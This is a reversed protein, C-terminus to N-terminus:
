RGKRRGKRARRKPHTRQYQKMRERQYKRQQKSFRAIQRGTFKTLFQLGVLKLPMGAREFYQFALSDLMTRRNVADQISRGQVKSPGYAKELIEGLQGHWSITAGCLEFEKDESDPSNQHSRVMVFMNFGVVSTTLPFMKPTPWVSYNLRGRRTDDVVFGQFEQTRHGMSFDEYEKDLRELLAEATIWGSPLRPVREAPIEPAKRARVPPEPPRPAAQRKQKPKQEARKRAPATKRRRRPAPIAEAIVSLLDAELVVPALWQGRRFPVPEGRRNLFGLVPVGGISSPERKYKKYPFDIFM